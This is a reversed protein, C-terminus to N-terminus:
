TPRGMVPFMLAGFGLGCSCSLKGNIMAMWEDLWVGFVWESSGKWHSHDPRPTNINNKSKMFYIFATKFPMKSHKKPKWLQNYASPQSYTTERYEETLQQIPITASSKKCMVDSVLIWCQWISCRSSICNNARLTHVVQFKTQVFIHYSIFLCVDIILKIKNHSISNWEFLMSNPYRRRRRWCCEM